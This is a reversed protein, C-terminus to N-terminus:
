RTNRVQVSGVAERAPRQPALLGRVLGAANFCWSVVSFVAKRASRKRWAMLLFPAAATLLFAWLRVAWPMPLMLFALLVLWWVLVAAYLRLERVGTLVLGLHPQGRAARLVEGLGCIYRSRWRRMLLQYPPADHGHHRVADLSIRWLKWGRARLRVALDFEEYSHLNRDSFYGAEQVAARRYLGGMDLRDVEGAQMHGAGREVRALYELSTTNMEVVRGGVGAVDPHAQMFDLAAPLFDPLMEMDGDLIYVFEGRSQQYGLQPGAGCCREDARALQVIRIPYDLALAVTRDTSCSDALVVEGGVAQVAALASEIAATIRKEENLAKIVISVRCPAAAPEPPNM